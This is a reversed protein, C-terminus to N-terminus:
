FPTLTVFGVPGTSIVPSGAGTVQDFVILRPNTGLPISQPQYVFQAAKWNNNLQYGLVSMFPTNLGSRQYIAFFFRYWEYTMRGESDVMPVDRKPMGQFVLPNSM